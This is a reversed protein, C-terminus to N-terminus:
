PQCFIFSEAAEKGWPRAQAAEQGLDGAQLGHTSLTGLSPQVAGRPLLSWPNGGASARAGPCVPCPGRPPVSPRRPVQSQGLQQAAEM